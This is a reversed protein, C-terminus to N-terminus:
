VLTPTYNLHHLLHPPGAIEYHKDNASDCSVCDLCMEDLRNVAITLFRASQVAFTQNQTVVRSARLEQNCKTLFPSTLGQYLASAWLASENWSCVSRLHRCDRRDVDRKAATSLLRLRNLTKRDCHEVVTIFIHPFAAYDLTTAM